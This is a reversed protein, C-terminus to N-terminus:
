GFIRHWLSPGSSRGDDAGALERALDTMAHQMASTEYLTKAGLLAARAVDRDYPITVDPDATLARRFEEAPLAGALGKKNLVHLTNREPTNPGIAERWRTTERASILTGDSVLLVVNALQLLQPLKVASAVPLDIVVFRYRHTLTSVLRLVTEESPELADSLPELAALLGLRDSIKTVARELFLDDIREPHELAERLAHGPQADLQLAADGSRLDLDLLLVRRGRKEALHWAGQTAITTAGVGGRVGLVVVLKGTRAAPREAGGSVINGLARTLVGTVLPKFFYEAVGAAKMDRYLVIDNRDGIVIVETSPDCIDALRNVRMMPDPYGSADVVLLRPWGRQTLDAIAAEIDGRVVRGGPIGVSSFSRLLVAESDADNVYALAVPREGAQPAETAHATPSPPPTASGAQVGSHGPSTETKVLTLDPKKLADAM